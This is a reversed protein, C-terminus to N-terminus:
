HADKRATRAAPAAVKEESQGKAREGSGNIQAADGQRKEVQM